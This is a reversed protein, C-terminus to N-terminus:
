IRWSHTSSEQGHFIKLKRGWSAMKHCSIILKHRDAWLAEKDRTQPYRTQITKHRIQHKINFAPIGKSNGSKFVKDAAMHELTSTSIATERKNAAWRQCRDMKINPNNNNSSGCSNRSWAIEAKTRCMRRCWHSGRRLSWATIKNNTKLHRSILWSCRWWDQRTQDM